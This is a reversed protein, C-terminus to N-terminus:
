PLVTTFSWGIAYLPVPVGGLAITSTTTAFTPVAWTVSLAPLVFSSISLGKVAVALRPESVVIAGPALLVIVNVNGLAHPLKAGCVLALAKSVSLSVAPLVIPMKSTLM